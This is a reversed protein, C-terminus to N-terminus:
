HLGLRVSQTHLVFHDPVNFFGPGFVNNEHVYGGPPASWTESDISRSTVAIDFFVILEVANCLDHAGVLSNIVPTGVSLAM